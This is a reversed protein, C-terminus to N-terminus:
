RFIGLRDGDRKGLPYLSTRDSLILIFISVPRRGLVYARLFILHRGHSIAGVLM